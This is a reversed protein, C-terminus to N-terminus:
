YIILDLLNFLKQYNENWIFIIKHSNEKTLKKVEDYDLWCVESVEEEQLKLSNIDIGGGSLTYFHHSFCFNNQENRKIITLPMVSLEGVDLGLEEEVEKSLAEEISEDGVVHGACLAFKNPNLKKFPSRKEMLVRKNEKDIIWLAVENHYLCNNHVVSRKEYMGTFHHNEDYVKLLEEKDAVASM